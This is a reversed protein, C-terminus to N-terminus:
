PRGSIMDPLFDIGWFNDTDLFEFGLEVFDKKVDLIRFVIRAHTDRHREPWRVIVEDGLKLRVPCAVRCGHQSLVLTEAAIEETNGQPDRWFLVIHLHRAIRGSRRHYGTFPSLGGAM